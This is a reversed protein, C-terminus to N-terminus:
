RIWGSPTARGSGVSFGSADGLINSPDALKRWVLLVEATVIRRDITRSQCQFGVWDVVDVQGDSWWAGVVTQNAIQNIQGIVVM